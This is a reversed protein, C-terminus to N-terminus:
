LRDLKDRLDKQSLGTKKFYGKMKKLSIEPILHIVGGKTFVILKQKPELSLRNRVEKPIVIQFKTSVHTYTMVTSYM